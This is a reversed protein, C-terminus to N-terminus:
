EEGEVLDGRVEEIEMEQVAEFIEAVEEETGMAEITLDHLCAAVGGLRSSKMLIGLTKRLM